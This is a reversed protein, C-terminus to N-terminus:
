RDYLQAARSPQVVRMGARSATSGTSGTSNIVKTSRSTETAMAMGQTERGTEEERKREKATRMAIDTDDTSEIKAAKREARASHTEIDTRAGKKATAERRTKRTSGAASGEL